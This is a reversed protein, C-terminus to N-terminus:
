SVLTEWEDQKLVRIGKLRGGGVEKEDEELKKRFKDDTKSWNDYLPALPISLQFYDM